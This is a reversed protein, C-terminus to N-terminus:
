DCAEAFCTGVAIIAIAIAIQEVTNAITTAGVAIRRDSAVGLISSLDRTSIEATGALDIYTSLADSIAEDGFDTLGAQEGIQAQLRDFAASGSEVDAVVGNISSSLRAFVKDQESGAESLTLIGKATAVAGAGLGVIGASLLGVGTTLGSVAGSSMKSLVGGLRSARSSAKGMRDSTRDMGTGLGDVRDAVKGVRDHLDQLGGGEDGKWEYEFITKPM